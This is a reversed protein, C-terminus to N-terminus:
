LARPLFERVGSAKADRDEDSGSQATGMRLLMKNPSSDNVYLTQSPFALGTGTKHVTEIIEFLLEEQIELFSSWDQAFFYAFIEVDFSAGLRIFRVRVSSREVCPHRALLMRITDLVSHLQAPSTEYRLGIVPHFWFKDRTSLTELRMGAIQGNPLSVVSRDLTRIRTSRLGVDEVTGQVDGLNLFDGVRVAQDAILSVGGIVNELTKQAALAVAIGGVGLGALAATLDVGFHYLTFLFGAFLLLGDM